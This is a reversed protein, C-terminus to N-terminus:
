LKKRIEIIGYVLVLLLLLISSAYSITEGTSYITPHFKFEITHKGAPIIMARLIWNARFHSAPEGDIYANWGNPYYVESFVALQDTAAHTEYTLHNPKYDTLSISAASDPIFSSGDIEHSFRQDVVMSLAPDIDGVSVIEADANEVIEYDHVFWAPGMAYPNTIPAPGNSTMIILYKTNLMNIVPLGGLVGQLQGPDASTRLVNMLRNMEPDIQMEILEQYRKLKAGHYGGISHHFYSTSADSFPNLTMNLVRFGTEPDRMIQKDADSPTYPNEVTASRVFNDDNLYRKNVVWMDVLVLLAVGALAYMMKLKKKLYLWILGASLVIFALSRFADLRLIRIRDNVLAAIAENHMDSPFGLQTLFGADGPNNVNFLMGPIALLILLIGGLIIVSYKLGKMLLQDDREKEFVKSLALIGLLPIAFEAIVLIMTVARFKNYGPLFDLFLDTFWMFNKGWALMISLITVTLLWWKLKGRVVFLGLIFLFVIIAGAYVPGSTFPQTGWYLPLQSAIKRADKRPVRYKILLDYMNSKEGADAYSAGGMFDPILLTMSESVGYSWQTIYDRDLGSTKNEANNTLESKGRTTYQTHDSSILMSTAHTGVALLSGILLVGSAKIFHNWNKNRITEVLEFVGYVLIIMFLYYTIQLHNAAIELALFFATLLAGAIYKGRFALIVGAVVPAMYAVAAAKSNHGAEIIIFFYSSFAFAFAGMAAIWPKVRMVLLLIFFGLFYVFVQNAPHPLGLQLVKNVKKFLNGEFQVSIFYAPMGSFMSNTWLTQEDTSKRFDTIEKSMGKYRDIDGQKLKKGELAPSFYILSILVFALLAVLYPIYKKYNLKEM